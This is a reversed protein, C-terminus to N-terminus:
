RRSSSAMLLGFGIFLSGSARNMWQRRVPKSLWHRAQHALLAYSMLFFFSFGMLTLMLATFQPVLAKDIAIFQPFLATLFVIAKPNSVAVGFAQLFIRLGSEERLRNRSEDPARGPQQLIQMVGLYVLYAAGTYRVLTFLTESAKLVAGLGTVAILGLVFLGTINGLASFSAKKWGFLGSKNMIFFVAPGPTATAVFVFSLYLLWSQFSM